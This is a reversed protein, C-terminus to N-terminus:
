YRITFHQKTLQSKRFFVLGMFFLDITLTVQPHQKIEQWAKEMGRSWHIDDFVLITDEDSRTLLLSFYRITAEYTHHGDMFVLDPSQSMGKIFDPLTQDFPGQILEIHNLGTEHFHRDAMRMVSSAGEFSYVKGRPSAAALYSTTIGLSTGLEIIMDAQSFKVLHFLLRAYKPSKLSARAIEKVKRYKTAGTVSGAGHDEVELIANDKLLRKRVSEINKFVPEKQSGNLVDKVLSFVFPSHIGHGKGNEATLLYHLYKFIIVSASYV